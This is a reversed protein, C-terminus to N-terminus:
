PGNRGPCLAPVGQELDVLRAEIMALQAEIWDKVIRWAVRAAQEKTRLSPPIRTDRVIVQYVRHINAPLLFTLVGFETPIRFSLASVIGDSDYEKLIAGAKAKSLKAEIEAVPRAVPVKTTYDLIPMNWLLTIVL